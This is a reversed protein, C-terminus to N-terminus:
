TAVEVGPSRRFLLRMGWLGRPLLNARPGLEGVFKRRRFGTIRSGRQTVAYRDNGGSSPPSSLLEPPFLSRPWAAESAGKDRPRSYMWSGSIVGDAPRRSGDDGGGGGGQGPNRIALQTQKGQSRRLRTDREHMGSEKTSYITRKRVFWTHTRARARARTHTHICKPRWM